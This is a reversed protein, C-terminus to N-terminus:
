SCGWMDQQAQAWSFNLTRYETCSQVFKKLPPCNGIHPLKYGPTWHTCVAKIFYLVCLISLQNIGPSTINHLVNLQQRSCRCAMDTGTHTEDARHKICYETQTGPFCCSFIWPCMDGTHSINVRATSFIKKKRQCHFIHRKRERWKGRDNHM